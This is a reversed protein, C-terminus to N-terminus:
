GSVFPEVFYSTLDGEAIWGEFTRYRIFYWNYSDACEPGELVFFIENPDISGLRDSDVGPRARINLPRPDEDLVRGRENLVLQTRPAGPCSQTATPAPTRTVNVTPTAERVIVTAGSIPPRTPTSDGNTCATLVLLLLLAICKM